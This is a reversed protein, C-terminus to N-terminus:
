VQHLSLHWSTVKFRTGTCSSDAPTAKRIVFIAVGAYDLQGASSEGASFSALDLFIIDRIELWPFGLSELM